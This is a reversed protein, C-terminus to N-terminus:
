PAVKGAVLLFLCGLITINFFLLISLLLWKRIDVGGFYIGGMTVEQESRGNM